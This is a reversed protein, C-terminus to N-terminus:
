FSKDDGGIFITNNKKKLLLIASASDHVHLRKLNKWHIIKGERFRRKRTESVKRFREEKEKKSVNKWAQKGVNSMLKKTSKSRKIGRTINNMKEIQWRPIPHEKHHHLMCLMKLNCLRNDYPNKNKHHIEFNGGKCNKFYCKKDFYAIGIRTAYAKVTAVTYTNKDYIKPFPVSSPYPYKWVM